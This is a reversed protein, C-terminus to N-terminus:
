CHRQKPMIMYRQISRFLFLSNEDFLKLSGDPLQMLERGREAITALHDTKADDLGTYYQPISKSLVAATQAVGAAIVAALFPAGYPLPTAGLQKIIATATAIGIRL